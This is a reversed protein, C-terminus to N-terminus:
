VRKGCALWYGKREELQVDGYWAPMNEEYWDPSKTVVLMQGGKTLAEHGAALFHEAIRFSAYYPPNALALDFTGRGAYNGTANLETSINTLENLEAGHQTCQIARAHSDVAHVVVTADRCAAALAVAGTGCGIDLVRMGPEITMEDMLRRAGVDLHRHSFVGPRSYARILRDRDRFVFECGFNKEKKLPGAKAGIYLAGESSARCQLKGFIAALQDRLWIDKANDITAYMRGGTRLREFGTQILDRTLEAEGRASCPLAVVDAEGEPWDAACEIQLNAPLKRWYDAALNARYLDLYTCTVQAAPLAEAVASAFQGLGASMCIVREGAMQPIASILLSEQPYPPLEAQDIKSRDERM